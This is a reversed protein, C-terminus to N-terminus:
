RFWWGGLWPAFGWFLFHFVVACLALIGLVLGATAMGKGSESKMGISGLITALLALPISVPWCCLLPFAVIGLVLAAVAMGDAQQGRPERPPPPAYDDDDYDDDDRRRRRRRPRDRDDDDDDRRKKPAPRRERDDAPANSAGSASASKATQATFVELCNGCEVEKGEFAEDIELESKCAPCFVRITAM